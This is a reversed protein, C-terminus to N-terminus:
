DARGTLIRGQPNRASDKGPGSDRGDYLTRVRVYLRPSQSEIVFPVGLAEYDLITQLNVSFFVPGDKKNMHSEIWLERLAFGVIRRAVWRKIRYLM